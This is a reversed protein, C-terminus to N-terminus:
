LFTIRVSPAPMSWKGTEAAAVKAEITQEGAPVRGFYVMDNEKEYTTMLNVTQSRDADVRETFSKSAYHMIGGSFANDFRKRSERIQAVAEGHNGADWSITAQL